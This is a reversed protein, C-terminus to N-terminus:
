EQTQGLPVLLMAGTMRVAKDEAKLCREKVARLIQGAATDDWFWKNFAASEPLVTGPLAMAAEFYLAKLDQAALRLAVAISLNKIRIESPKGSAYAGLLESATDSDL